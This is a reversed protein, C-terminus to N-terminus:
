EKGPVDEDELEEAGEDLAEMTTMWEKSGCHPCEKPWNGTDTTVVEECEMCKFPTEDAQPEKSTNMNTNGM